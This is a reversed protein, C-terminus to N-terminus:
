GTCLTFITREAQCLLKGFGVNAGGLTEKQCYREEPTQYHSRASENLIIYEDLERGDWHRRKEHALNEQKHNARDLFKYVETSVNVSVDKGNLKIIIEM